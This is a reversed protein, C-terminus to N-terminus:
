SKAAEAVAEEFALCSDDIAEKTICLPPSVKVTAGKFGVPAFMLLGKEFCSGVIRFALETDPDKTGPKVIHVAAVLGKGQVAGIVPHRSAIDELKRLLYEGVVAANSILGKDLITQISALAAACCLPNGTHTSTMERPGFLDMIDGRGLVCSLPLSSSIAKGCCILDPVVGYHEFGWLTGTRGFGAQVEDFVLLIDNETCWERLKKAYEVPLFGANGGQYTETIVCCVKEPTVRKQKLTKLFLDFSKDECRWDGPFPVQHFNPDLSGIWEKLAPSGGAQQSGLTRGHFAGEFSVIGLKKAGGVKAGHTRALKIACEITESGTTLLFCKDIGEPALGVLREVLKARIESPFCYNHLLGQAIQDMLASVVAPATHGASAVLVGSSWDIWKNGWKDFVQFGDARHWVIPPQGTMSLPEFRALAKLIPLSEPVPIKTKIRRYATNIEPVAKPTLDYVLAM